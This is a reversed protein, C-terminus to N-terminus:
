CFLSRPFRKRKYGRPAEGHLWFLRLRFRFLAWRFCFSAFLSLRILAAHISEFSADHARFHYYSLAHGRKYSGLM